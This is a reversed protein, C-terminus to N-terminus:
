FAHITPSLARKRGRTQTVPTKGGVTNALVQEADEVVETAITSYVLDEIHQRRTVARPSELCTTTIHPM